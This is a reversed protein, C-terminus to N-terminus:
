AGCEMPCTCDPNLVNFCDPCMGLPKPEAKPTRTPRAAVAIPLPLRHAGDTEPSVSSGSPAELAFDAWEPRVTVAM